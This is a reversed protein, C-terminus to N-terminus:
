VHAVDADDGEAESAPERIRVILLTLDDNRLHGDTWAADVLENFPSDDPADALALVRDWGHTPVINRLLWEALADTALVFADGMQWTGRASETHGWVSENANPNSSLALPFNNFDEPRKVPFCSVPAREEAPSAQDRARVHFLCSDGVALAVWHGGSSGAEGQRLVLAICTAFAGERIKSEVYWPMPDTHIIAKWAEQAPDIWDRWARASNEKPLGEIFRQTLLQAWVRAFASDSAGDAVAYIGADENTACADEYEDETKGLKPLKFLRHHVLQQQELGKM